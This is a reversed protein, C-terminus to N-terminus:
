GTGPVGQGTMPRAPSRGPEADGPLTKGGDDLTTVLATELANNLEQARAMYAANESVPVGPKWLEALELLLADFRSADPSIM